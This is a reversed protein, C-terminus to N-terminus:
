KHCADFARVGHLLNACNRLSLGGEGRLLEAALFRVPHSVDKPDVFVIPHVQVEQMNLLQAGIEALLPHSGPRPMPLFFALSILAIRQSCATQM